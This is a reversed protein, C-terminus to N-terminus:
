YRMRKSSKKDHIRILSRCSPCRTMSEIRKGLFILRCERCRCLLEESINWGHRNGQWWQRICAIGAVLMILVTLFTFFHDTGIAIM